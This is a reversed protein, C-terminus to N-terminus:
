TVLTMELLWAVESDEIAASGIRVSAAIVWRRKLVKEPGLELGLVLQLQTGFLNTPHSFEDTFWLLFLM